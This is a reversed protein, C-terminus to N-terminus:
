RKLGYQEEVPPNSFYVRVNFDADMLEIMEFSDRPILKFGSKSLCSKKLGLYDTVAFDADGRELKTPDPIRIKVIRLPGSETNFAGVEYVIGSSTEKRVKGIKQIVNTLKNYEKQNQSFICVWHVPANVENTYKNKLENAQKVIKCVLEELESTNM